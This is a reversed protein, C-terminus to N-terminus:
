MAKRNNIEDRLVAAQEYDESKVATELESYLTDIDMDSFHNKVTTKENEVETLIKDEENDSVQAKVMDEKTRFLVGAVDLISQYTYIPAHFRLAMAVADSTRADIEVKEGNSTRVAHITSYFIGDLLKYIVVKEVEVGFARAFTAFLDHTLPRKPVTDNQFVEAISQAEWEGIIIPIKRVQTHGVGGIDESLILAYAGSSAQSYTIGTLILPILEQQNM